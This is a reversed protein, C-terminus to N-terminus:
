VKSICEQCLRVHNLNICHVMNSFLSRKPPIMNKDSKIVHAVVSKVTKKECHSNKQEQLEVNRDLQALAWYQKWIGLLTCVAAPNGFQEWKQMRQHTLLLKGQCMIKVNHHLSLPLIKRLSYNIIRLSKKGM